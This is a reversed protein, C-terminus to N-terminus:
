KQTTPNEGSGGGGGTIQFIQCGGFVGGGVNGGVNGGGGILRIEKIWPRIAVSTKTGPPMSYIPITQIKEAETLPTANLVECAKRCAEDAFAPIANPVMRKIQFLAYSADNLAARLKEVENM